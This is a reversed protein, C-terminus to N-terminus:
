FCHAWLSSYHRHEPSELYAIPAQNAAEKLGNVAMIYNNQIIEKLVVVTILYQLKKHHQVCLHAVALTCPIILPLAFRLEKHNISTIALFYVSTFHILIPEKSVNGCYAWYSGLALPLAWFMEDELLQQLAFIYFNSPHTGFYSIVKLNNLASGHVSWALQGHFLSDGAVCFLTMPIFFCIGAKVFAVFWECKFCKLLAPLLVAM